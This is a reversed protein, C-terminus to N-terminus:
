KPAKWAMSNPDYYPEIRELVGAAEWVRDFYDSHTGGAGTLSYAKVYLVNVALRLAEAQTM